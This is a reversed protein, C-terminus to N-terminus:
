DDGSAAPLWDDDEEVRKRRLANQYKTEWAEIAALVEATLERRIGVEDHAFGIFARLLLPAAEVADFHVLADAVGDFLWAHARRENWRM